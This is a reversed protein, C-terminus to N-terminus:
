FIWIMGNYGDQDDVIISAEDAGVVSSIDKCNNDEVGAIKIFDGSCKEGNFFQITFATSISVVLLISFFVRKM